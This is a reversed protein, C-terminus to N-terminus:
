RTSEKYAALWGLGAVTEAAPIYECGVFGAYGLRDLEDFLFFDAVEGTGPAAGPPRVSTFNGGAYVVGNVHEVAYVVGNTQWTPLPQATYTEQGTVAPAALSAATPTPAAAATGGSWAGVAVLTTVTVLLAARRCLSTRNM